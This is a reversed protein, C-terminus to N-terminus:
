PILTLGLFLFVMRVSPKDDVWLSPGFVFSGNDLLHRIISGDFNVLTYLTRSISVLHRGDNPTFKIAKGGQRQYNAQFDDVREIGGIVGRDLTFQM